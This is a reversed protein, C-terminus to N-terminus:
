CLRPSSVGSQYEWEECPFETTAPTSFLQFHGHHERVTRLSGHVYLAWYTRRYSEALIPDKEADAFGKHQLGLFLAMEVAKGFMNGCFEVEGEGFAAISICLLSQINWITAQLSGLAMKHAKERLPKSNVTKSYVAGIYAIMSMMLYFEHKREHALRVLTQKPPLWSHTKHFHTYYLHILDAETSSSTTKPDEMVTWGKVLPNAIQAALDFSPINPSPTSNSTPESEVPSAGDNRMIRKGRRSEAYYCTKEEIRCNKCAPLEGSCKIHRSRCQVCALSARKTARSRVPGALPRVAKKGPSSSANM